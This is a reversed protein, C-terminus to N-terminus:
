NQLMFPQVHHRPVYVLCLMNQLLFVYRQIIKTNRFSSYVNGLCLSSARGEFLFIKHVYDSQFHSLDM